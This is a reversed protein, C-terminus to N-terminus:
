LFAEVALLVVDSSFMVIRVVFKSNTTTPSDLSKM